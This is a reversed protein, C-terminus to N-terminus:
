RIDEASKSTSNSMEKKPVTTGMDLLGGEHRASKAWSCSGEENYLNGGRPRPRSNGKEGRDGERMKTIEQGNKDDYEDELTAQADCPYATTSIENVNENRM